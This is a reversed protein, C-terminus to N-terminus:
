ETQSFWIPFTYTGTLQVSNLSKEGTPRNFLGYLIYRADLRIATSFVLPFKFGGGFALGRQISGTKVQHHFNGELTRTTISLESMSSFLYELSLHPAINSKVITWDAGLSLSWLSCEYESEDLPLNSSGGYYVVITGRGTLVQYVTSISFSIPNHPRSFRITALIPHANTFGYGLNSVPNVYEEPATFHTYGYGIGIEVNQALTPFSLVVTFFVALIQKMHSLKRECVLARELPHRMRGAFFAPRM